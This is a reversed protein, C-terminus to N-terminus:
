LSSSSVMELRSFSAYLFHHFGNTSQHSLVPLFIDNGPTDLVHDGNLFDPLVPNEEGAPPVRFAEAERINVILHCRLRVLLLHKPAIAGDDVAQVASGGGFDGDEVVAHALDVELLGNEHGHLPVAQVVVPLFVVLHKQVLGGIAITNDLLLEDGDGDTFLIYIGGPTEEGTHFCVKRGVKGGKAGGAAGHVGHFPQLDEVTEVALAFFILEAEREPIRGPLPVAEPVVDARIGHFPVAVIELDSFPVGPYQVELVVGAVNLIIEYGFQRVQVPVHHEGNVHYGNGCVLGHPLRFVTKETHLCVNGVPLAALVAIVIEGSDNGIVHFQLPLFALLKQIIQGGTVLPHDEADQGHDNGGVGLVLQIHIRIGNEGGGPLPHALHSNKFILM